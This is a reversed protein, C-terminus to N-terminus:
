PQGPPPRTSPRAASLMRWVGWVAFVAGLALCVAGLAALKAIETAVGVTVLILGACLALVSLASRSDRPPQIVPAPASPQQAASPRQRQQAEVWWNAVPASPRASTTRPAPSTAPVASAAAAQGPDGPRRLTTASQPRPSAPVTAASKTQPLRSLLEWWPVEITQELSRDAVWSPDCCKKLREALADVEPDSLAELQKWVQTEFPAVFDTQQFLLNKETYLSWLGTDRSLAVLSLYIVFASFTDFWRGWRDAGNYVPHQYNLHGSETPAAQGVLAPIWVGDYDVLRLRGGSDVLVNGHQLDGHTFEAQQLLAVMERWRIALTVLAGSDSCAVLSDVHKDLAQGDIWEMMLVPWTANNVHIAADLWTVPSVHPSLDHSSLYGSLAGYREQSSADKRIFCRVAQPAGNVTAQFVVASSGTALIPGLANQRFAAQQLMNLTFVRDPFQVAKFYDGASPCNTMPTGGM